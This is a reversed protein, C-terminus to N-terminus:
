TSPVTGDFAFRWTVTDTQALQAVVEGADSYTVRIRVCAIEGPALPGGGIDYATLQVVGEWSNSTFPMDADNCVVRELTAAVYPSLEGVQPTDNADVGCSTDGLIAEDGTCDTDADVLDIVSATLVLSGSGANKLCVYATPLSGGPQQIYSATQFPVTLNDQDWLVADLDGDCNVDGADYAALEIKLDAASTRPGSELLDLGTTARDSFVAFIGTGGVLTILVGLMITIRLAHRGM